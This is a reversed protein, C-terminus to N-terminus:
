REAGAGSALASFATRMRRRYRCWATEPSGSGLPALSTWDWLMPMRGAIPRGARALSNHWFGHCNTCLTQINTPDNNEPNGDTHHAHLMKTSGCAECNPLRLKRARWHLTTKKVVKRSNACSLSCHRRRQFVAYDELRGNFDKRGFLTGCNECPKPQVIRLSPMDWFERSSLPRLSVWGHPWGMLWTVFDPNLKRRPPSNPGGSSSPAGDQPTTPPLPFSRSVEAQQGLDSDFGGGKWDREKPTGWHEAAKGLSPSMNKQNSNANPADPATPPQREDDGLQKRSAFMQGNPTQWEKAAETLTVDKPRRAQSSEADEATATPWSSSGNEATRRASTRLRSSSRRLGTALAKLTPSSLESTDMGFSDAWTKSSSGPPTASESSGSPTPGSIARTTKGRGSEPSAGRSVRSAALSAIWSAVGRDATSPEYTLGCLRRILADRKWGSRWSSSPRHKTNWAVSPALREFLSDSDSTWVVPEPASPFCTSPVYLWM